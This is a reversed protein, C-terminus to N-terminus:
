IFNRGLIGRRGQFFVYARNVSFYKVFIEMLIQVTVKTDKSNFIMSLIYRRPNEVLQVYDKAAQSENEEKVERSQTFNESYIM